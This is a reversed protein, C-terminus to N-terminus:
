RRQTDPDILSSGEETEMAEDAAMKGRSVSQSAPSAVRCRRERSGQFMNYDPTAASCMVTPSM